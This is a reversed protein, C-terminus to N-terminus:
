TGAKTWVTQFHSEYRAALAASDIILLNEANRTNANTSWNFSGTILVHSDILAIKDHMENFGKSLRVQLGAATLNGYESSQQKAQDNDMVIQVQINRTKATILAVRISDLTFSYILVHVTQNARGIWYVVRSACDSGKEGQSFCLDLITPSPITQARTSVLVISGLTLSIFILALM